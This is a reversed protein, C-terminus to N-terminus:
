PIPNVGPRVTARIGADPPNKLFVKLGPDVDYDAPNAGVDTANHIISFTAGGNVRFIQCQETVDVRIEVLTYGSRNLNEEDIVFQEPKTIPEKSIQELWVSDKYVRVVLFDQNASSRLVSRNQKLTQVIIAM